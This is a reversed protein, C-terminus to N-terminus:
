QGGGGAIIVKSAKKEPPAGRKPEDTPEGSLIAEGIGMAAEVLSGDGEYNLSDTKIKIGGKKTISISAVGTKKSKKDKKENKKDM